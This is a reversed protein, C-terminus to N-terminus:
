CLSRLARQWDGSQCRFGPGEAFRECQALDRRETEEAHRREIAALEARAADAEKRALAADEQAEALEKKANAFPERLPAEAALVDSVTLGDWNSAQTPTTPMVEETVAQVGAATERVQDAPAEEM